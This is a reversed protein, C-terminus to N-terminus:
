GEWRVLDILVRLTRRRNCRFNVGRLDALDSGAPHPTLDVHSNKSRHMQVGLSVRPAFYAAM